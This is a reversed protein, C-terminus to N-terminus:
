EVWASTALSIGRDSIKIERYQNSHPMGRSKLIHLVRNRRGRCDRFAACGMHGHPVIGGSRHRELFGANSTLDTFLSTILESKLYDIFRTLISKVQGGTGVATLNSIPDIIVTDPRYREVMNHMTLLHMELGYITPRETFFVLRGSDVHRKLDIGISSMNRIIQETSEEFAFYLCSGGRSCMSDAFHAAMSSKGTGATGSVLASSGKFFGRGDFMEDLDAIGTSVRDASVQYNLGLSTIPLISIGTEEILFPYENTGHRSGRYKLLRLRRTSIEERVEHRLRIVCDSVYEELGHRTLTLDGSEGTIIATLGKDKLWRFLRRLESRLIFENPLSAFLSEITDLAIRKAGISDVAYGLRIFLGELNYEGTEEIENREVAVHDIFIKKDRILEELDWGLSSVNKILEETTEEFTVFVGPEGFERAGRVLFEMALLTKGCGANGAVLITRGKPLGGFTIEDLGKIGSPVKELGYPSMPQSQDATM